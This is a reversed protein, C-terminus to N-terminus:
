FQTRLTEVNPALYIGLFDSHNSLLGKYGYYIALYLIYSLVPLYLAYHDHPTTLTTGLRSSDNLLFFPISLSLPTQAYIYLSYIDCFFTIFGSEHLRLLQTQANAEVEHVDV